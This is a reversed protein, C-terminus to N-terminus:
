NPKSKFIGMIAIIKANIALLKEVMEEIKEEVVGLRPLVPFSFSLACLFLIRFLELQLLCVISGTGECEFGWFIELIKVMEM